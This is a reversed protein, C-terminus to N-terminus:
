VKVTRLIDAFVGAATVERGAGYGRITLPVPNYRETLFVFANEGGKVGALVNDNKVRFMKVQAKGDKLIAGMRLLEGKEKAQSSLSSFYGDVEPLRAMFEEPSGSLDFGLPFISEMEIDKMEVSMGAERAIILAKRAVDAGSLDERADPETFHLERAKRVAESFLEGEDLKGFIYSLSGSMIGTFELLKDGSRFLNKLTDIIPLGAGVNTEYLFKKYNRKSAERIAKYYSLSAANAKKNAAVVNFGADLLETYRSAIEDSATCDVFVPNFLRHAKVLAICKDVSEECPAAKKEEERWNELSLGEVSSVFADASSLAKLKMEINQALLSDKEKKIQDLLTGGIAGTGFVFLDIARLPSFFFRHITRVAEESAEEAIVSSICRENAGQAISVININRSSIASLFKAAVGRNMVMREGVVSVIALKDKVNVEDMLKNQREFVFEKKLENVVSAVEKQRVCFSITYESSSQTILIISAHARNVSQFIRSAMGHKDRMLSGSVSIMAVGKLCSIGSIEGFDHAKTSILTGPASPNMTNLCVASIGREKLPLLTKPHLVKSGFFALEIAEDYSINKLLVADKVVRPDATYVGDVDSWFEVRSAGLSSAIISASFDSGNRGLLGAKIEGSPSKWGSIFGPFILISNGERYRATRKASEVYDADGQDQEGSTIVCTRSDILEVKVSSFIELVKQLISTSVQEGLGMIKCHLFVPCEGMTSLAALLSSYQKKYSSLSSFAASSDFSENGATQFHAKLEDIIKTHIKEFKEVFEENKKADKMCKAISEELMNSVGSVASAVVAVRDEKQRMLIIKVCSLIRAAEGMSTGGFKMVIMKKERIERKNERM